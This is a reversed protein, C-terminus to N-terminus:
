RRAGPHDPSRRPSRRPSRVKSAADVSPGADREDAVTGADAGMGADSLGALDPTTDADSGEGADQKPADDVITVAEGDVLNQQGAIVALEGETVGSKIQVFADERLGIEPHRLRARGQEVVFLGERERQAGSEVFLLARTPVSLADKVEELVLEASGFMGPALERRGDEGIPPNKLDIEVTASRTQPDLYPFVRAVAGVFERDPWADITLHVPQGEVVRAADAEGVQLTVKLTDIAYLSCLTVQPSALDGVQLTKNAVVGSIPARITSNQQNILQGARSAILSDKRAVVADYASQLQEFNQRSIAQQRYLRRGRNLDLRRATLEADVAAIEADLQAIAQQLADSRIVALVEGKDIFDGNEVNFTVIRESVLSAVKVEREPRLDATTRLVRRLTRREVPAVRVAVAIEGGDPPAQSGDAAGERAGSGGSCGFAALCLCFLLIVAM